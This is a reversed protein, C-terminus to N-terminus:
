ANNPLSACTLPPLDTRLWMLRIWVRDWIGGRNATRLEVIFQGTERNWRMSSQKLHQNFIVKCGAEMIGSGIPNGQEKRAAYDMHSKYKKLYNLAAAFDAKTEKLGGRRKQQAARLIVTKIEDQEHRLTHRQQKAWRNAADPVSGFLLAALHSVYECAHFFDM